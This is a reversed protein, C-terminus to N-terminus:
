YTTLNGQDTRMDQGQQGIGTNDYVQVNDSKDSQCPTPEM